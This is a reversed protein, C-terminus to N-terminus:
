SEPASRPPAGATRDLTVDVPAEAFKSFRRLVLAREAPKAAAAKDLIALVLALGGMDTGERLRHVYLKDEFCAALSNGFAM